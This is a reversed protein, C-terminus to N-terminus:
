ALALIRAEPRAEHGYVAAGGYGSGGGGGPADTRGRVPMAVSGCGMGRHGGGGCVRLRALPSPSPLPLPDPGVALGGFVLRRRPPLSRGFTLFSRTSSITRGSTNRAITEVTKPIIIATACSSGDSSFEASSRSAFFEIRRGAPPPGWIARSVPLLLRIMTSSESMEGYTFFATM